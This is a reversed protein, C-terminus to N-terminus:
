PRRVVLRFRGGGPRGAQGGGAGAGPRLGHLQGGRPAREGGPPDLLGAPKTACHSTSTPGARRRWASASSATSRPRSARSTASADPEACRAARWCAPATSGRTADRRPPDRRLRGARACRDTWQWRVRGPFRNFAFAEAFAEGPNRLLPHGRGRPLLRGARVGQCVREYSSGASRAGTSRRGRVAPQPSPRRRPARVRPRPRLRPDCRRRLQHRRQRQPVDPQPGLLLLRTRGQGCISDM